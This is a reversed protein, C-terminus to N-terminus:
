VAPNYARLSTAGFAGGSPNLAQRPVRKEGGMAKGDHRGPAALGPTEREMRGGLRGKRERGVAALHDEAGRAQVGSPRPAYRVPAEDLDRDL